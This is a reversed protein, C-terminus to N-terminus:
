GLDDYCNKCRMDPELGGANYWVPGSKHGGIRCFFKTLNFPRTLLYSLWDKTLWKNM